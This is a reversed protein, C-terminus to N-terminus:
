FSVRFTNLTTIFAALLLHQFSNQSSTSFVWLVSRVLHGYILDLWSNTASCHLTTRADCRAYSCWSLQNFTLNFNSEDSQHCINAYLLTNRSALDTRNIIRDLLLNPCESLRSRGHSQPNIQDTPSSLKPITLMKTSAVETKVSILSLQHDSAEEM